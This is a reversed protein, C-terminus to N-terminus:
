PPQDPEGEGADGFAPAVVAHVFGGTAGHRGFIRRQGLLAPKAANVIRAEFAGAADTPVVEVDLFDLFVGTAPRYSKYVAEKISFIRKAAAALALGHCEAFRALERRQVILDIADDAIPTDTEVDIGVFPIEAARAVAAICVHHTHSISGVIGAPWAPSRDPLVPLAEIRIGLARMACRAYHRGAHFEIRRRPAAHAVAQEEPFDGQDPMGILGGALMLGPPAGARM